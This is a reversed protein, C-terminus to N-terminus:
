GAGSQEKLEEIVEEAVETLQKAQAVVAQAQAEAARDAIKLAANDARIEEVTAKAQDSQLSM